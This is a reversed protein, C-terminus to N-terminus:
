IKKARALKELDDAIRRLEAARALLTESVGGPPDPSSPPMLKAGIGAAREAAELKRWAKSSIPRKGTRYSFLSARSTGLRDILDEVNCGLAHALADTRKLFNRSTENEEQTPHM